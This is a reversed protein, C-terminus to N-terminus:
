LHLKMGDNLPLYDFFSYGNNIMRWSSIQNRDTPNDVFLFIESKIRVLSKHGEMYWCMKMKVGKSLTFTYKLHLPISRCVCVMVSVKVM